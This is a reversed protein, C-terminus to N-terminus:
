WVGVRGCGGSVRWGAAEVELVEEPVLDEGRQQVRADGGRGVRREGDGVDAAAGADPQELQRLLHM